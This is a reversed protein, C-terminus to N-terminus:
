KPCPAISSPNFEYSVRREEEVDSHSLVGEFKKVIPSNQIEQETVTVMSIMKSKGDDEYSTSDM